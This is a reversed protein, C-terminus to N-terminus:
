PHTVGTPIVPLPLPQWEGCWNDNLTVPSFWVDVSRAKRLMLSEEVLGLEEPDDPTPNEAYFRLAHDSLQPPHRKCDGFRADELVVEWFRCTECRQARESM